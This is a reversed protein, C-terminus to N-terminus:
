IVKLVPAAIKVDNNKLKIKPVKIIDLNIFKWGFPWGIRSSPGEFWKISFIPVGVIPPTKINDLIVIDSKSQASRLLLNIQIHKKEDIINPNM